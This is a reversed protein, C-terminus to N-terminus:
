SKRRKRKLQGIHQELDRITNEAKELIQGPTTSTAGPSFRIFECFDLTQRLSNLIETDVEEISLQSIVKDVSLEAQQISFRHALYAWIARSTEEYFANYDQKKLLTSAKKLRKRAMSTAKKYRLLQENAYLKIRRRILIIFIIFALIPLFFLVFHLTSGFFYEHIIKFKGTQTRIFRIDTETEGQISSGSAGQQGIVQINFEDTTITVYDAKSPSFYSFEIAPITFKGPERPIILYTFVKDGSIGSSTTKTNDETQPDFVEFSKPFQVHPAELLSMNGNGSIKINFNLADDILIREKNFWAEMTYNGVQGTFSATRNKSPLEKINLNITNSRFKKQIDEYSNGFGSFPDNGFSSSFFNNFMQDMWDFQNQQKRQVPIRVIAEIELPDISLNGSKQPYVVIKRLLATAYRKGNYTEEAQQPRTTPDVINESWFGDFAPIKEIGYSTITHRTYLKYTIIIPEGTWASKKDANGIILIDDANLGVQTADTQKKNDQNTAAQSGGTQAGQQQTPVPNQNNNTVIVKLPPSNVWSGNVKARAPTIDFTGTATPILTFTWGQEGENGGGNVLQGNVYMQMSGGGSMSSQGLLRFGEFPPREFAESKGGKLTYTVTFQQRVGVKSSSLSASLTAQGYLVGFTLVFVITAVIRFQVFNLKTMNM